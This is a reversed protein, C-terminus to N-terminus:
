NTPELWLAPLPAVTSRRNARDRWYTLLRPEGTHNVLGKWNTRAQCGFADDIEDYTMGKVADIFRAHISVWNCIECADLSGQYIRIEISGHCLYARWNVFEFRDRAEAFDEFHEVAKIDSLEYQPNGCMSNDCRRRAVFRKWLPYTKRYAYAVQLLEESSLDRADIHVHLGCSSDTEWSSDDAYDCMVEIADFGMDGQLIPSVFERGPTSCEYVCGWDTKGHLSRWGDCESTELEVGFSRESGVKDFTPVAPANWPQTKWTDARGYCGECYPDGEWGLYGDLPVACGCSSCECYMAEFCNDCVRRDNHPLIHGNSHSTVEDCDHCTFWLSEWCCGCYERDSHTPSPRLDSSGVLYNRNCHHCTTYAARHCSRCRDKNDDCRVLDAHESWDDLWMAEGCDACVAYLDDFCRPCM